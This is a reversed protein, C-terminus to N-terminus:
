NLNIKFTNAFYISVGFQCFRLKRGNWSDIAVVFAPLHRQELPAIFPFM